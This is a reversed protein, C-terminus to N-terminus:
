LKSRYGTYISHKRKKSNVRKVIKVIILIVAALLVLIIAYVVLSITNPNKFLSVLDKSIDVTKRGDEQSYSRPVVPVGEEEDFSKLYEAIAYWEKVERNGGASLDMIIHEEYDTVPKGDKDKPIVSLIGFSKDNVVPLMQGSYLGVVVRYLKKDDIENINGDPDELVAETVKNFIMRNPNFTYRIGSMYLQAEKMIPTISADIECVTKLEKGTLYISILPYGPTGDRGIGLSSVIFADSVTIDGKTFSGRITGNPVISLAIPEYSKGEAQQVAYIYADSILNGLPEEKHEKGILSSANFNFTTRALVQEFELDFNDLYDKQVLGKFFDITDSIGTDIPLTDDIPKLSYDKLIWNDDGGKSIKIVGLNQGYEGVSGIVTNGAIIPEQLETHSHGSIIIDIEPVKKALIEDETDPSKGGTGSHSLCIILDAKEETNLINVVRRANEIMDTFEIEAMPANSDAEVGMLGFVGIRMGKRELVIYDKVGYSDFADKLQELSPTLNGEKDQPFIFNSIVLEPLPDGSNKAAMLSDALGKARFDFEHNGFTTADYGMQGLMRLEPAHSDFATQFLTGMSFDGADLLLLDPDKAKEANIASMLRAYGGLTTIEGDRLSTYPLMHDHMDHTFLITLDEGTAKSLSPFVIFHGTLVSLVM